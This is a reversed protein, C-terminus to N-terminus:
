KRNEQMNAQIKTKTYLLNELGEAGAFGEGNVRYVM